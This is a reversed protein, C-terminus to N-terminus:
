IFNTLFDYLLISTSKEYEIISFKTKKQFYVSCGYFTILLVYVYTMWFTGPNILIKTSGIILDKHFHAVRRKRGHQNQIRFNAGHWSFELHKRKVFRSACNGGDALFRTQKPGHKFVFIFNILFCYPGLFNKIIISLFQM